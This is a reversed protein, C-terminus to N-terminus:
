NEPIFRCDNPNPPDTELEWAGAAAAVDAPAAAPEPIKMM